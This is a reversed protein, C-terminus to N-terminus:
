IQQINFMNELFTCFFFTIRKKYVEKRFKTFIYEVM